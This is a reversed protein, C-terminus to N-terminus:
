KKEKEKLIYETKVDIYKDFWEKFRKPYKTKIATLVDELNDARKSDHIIEVLEDASCWDIVYDILNHTAVYDAIEYDAMENLVEEELNQKSVEDVVDIEDYDVYGMAQLISEMENKMEINNLLYAFLGTKDWPTLNDICDLIHKIDTKFKIKEIDEDYM